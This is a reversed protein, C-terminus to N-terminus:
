KKEWARSGKIQAYIEGIEIFLDRFSYLVEQEM